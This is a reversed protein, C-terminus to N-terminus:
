LQSIGPDCPIMDWFETGFLKITPSFLYTDTAYLPAMIRKKIGTYAFIYFRM